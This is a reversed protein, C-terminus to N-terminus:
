HLESYQRDSKSIYINYQINIYNEELYSSFIKWGMLCDKSFFSIRLTVRSGERGDLTSHRWPALASLGRSMDAELSCRGAPLTRLTRAQTGPPRPHFAVRSQTLESAIPFSYFLHLRLSFKELM